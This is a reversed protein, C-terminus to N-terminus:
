REVRRLAVVALHGGFGLSIQWFSAHPSCCGISLEVLGSGGLCHGLWEKCGLRPISRWPGDGLAQCEYADGIATGTAHCIIVEPQPAVTWLAALAASLVQPDANRTASAPDSIRVGAVLQWAGHGALAAVGLGEAPAFGRAEAAVATVRSHPPMNGCSVGLSAFGALVLPTLNCDSATCLGRRIRGWAMLDAVALLSYLGTACAAAIPCPVHSGIGLERALHPGQMGPWTALFGTGALLPAIAGKSSSISWGLGGELSAIASWAPAALARLRAAGDAHGDPPLRGLFGWQADHTLSSRGAAVQRWAQAATGASSRSDWACVHVGAYCTLPINGV